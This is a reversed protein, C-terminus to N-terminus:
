RISRRTFNGCAPFFDTKELPVGTMKGLQSAIMILAMGNLFGTIITKPIFEAIFGARAVGAVLLIGGILLAQMTALALYTEADAGAAVIALSSAVLIAVTDEAGVVVQRATGFLPFLLMALLTAYLGNIPQLGALNSYAVAAPITVAFIIVGSILDGPLWSLKYRRLLDLRLIATTGETSEPM